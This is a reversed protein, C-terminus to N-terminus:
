ETESPPPPPACWGRFGGGFGGFGRHMGPGPLEPAIKIDPKSDLWAKYQDAQDRTIKGETVLNDLYQDRAEVQMEQRAQTFADELTQQDIGLKEAVRAMLTKPQTDDGNSTQAFAVGAGISGAILVVVLSAIVIFKKSRWM